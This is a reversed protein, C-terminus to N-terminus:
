NFVSERLLFDLRLNFKATVSLSFIFFVAAFYECIRIIYSWFTKRSAFHRQQCKIQNKCISKLFINNQNDLLKAVLKVM